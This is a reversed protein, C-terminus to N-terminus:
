LQAHCRAKQQNLLAAFKSHNKIGFNLAKRREKNISNTVRQLSEKDDSSSYNAADTSSTTVTAM